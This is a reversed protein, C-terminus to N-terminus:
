EPHRFSLAATTLHRVCPSRSISACEVAPLEAGPSLGSSLSAQRSQIAPASDPAIELLLPRCYSARCCAEPRAMEPSSVFSPKETEGLQARAIGRRMAGGVLYRDEDLLERLRWEPRV